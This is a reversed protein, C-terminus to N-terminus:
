KLVFNNLAAVVVGILSEGAILGSAVPVVYEGAKGDKRAMVIAAIAAGLFMQLPQYFPLIMGLGIGTASPIYTKYKKNEVREALTICGEAERPWLELGFRVTTDLPPAVLQDIATIAQSWKSSAYDPADAPTAGSPTKHMTLTRDLMILVDPPDCAASGGGQGGQSGGDLIFGGGEGSSSSSPGSAGGAGDTTTSASTSTSDGGACSAAVYLAASTATLLLALRAPRIM